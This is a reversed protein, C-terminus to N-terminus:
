YRDIIEQFGIKRTKGAKPDLNFDRMLQRVTNIVHTPTINRMCEFRMKDDDQHRPCWDFRSHEFDKEDNNFCGNCFYTNTIRYPNRYEYYPLSFGSIMITPCDAAWSLWSLGSSMGIFFEAHMLMNLREDLPINGTCDEAGFPVYHYHNPTGVVKDRDICIVRYGVSKLFDITQLWGTPHSWIKCEASGMSAIVVYPEKIPRENKEPILKPQIEKFPYLGLPGAGGYQLNNYKWCQPLFKKETSPFPQAPYFSAYTDAPHDTSGLGFEIEPYSRKFMEILHGPALFTVKNPKYRKKFELAYPVWAINDGLLRSGPEIVVNKGEVNFDHIFVPKQSENYVEIRWPTYTVVPTSLTVGNEAWGNIVITDTLTDTIRVFWKSNDPVKVRAGMRFDYLLGPVGTPLNTFGYKLQVANRDKSLDKEEAM